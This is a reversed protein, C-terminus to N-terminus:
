ELGRKEQLDRSSEPGEAKGGVIGRRGCVSRTRGVGAADVMAGRKEMIVVMLNGNRDRNRARSERRYHGRVCRGPGAEARKSGDRIPSSSRNPIATERGGGWGELAGFPDMLILKLRTSSTKPRFTSRIRGIGAPLFSHWLFNEGVGQHKAKFCVSGRESGRTHGPACNGRGM